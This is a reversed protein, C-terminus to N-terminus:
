SRTPDFPFADCANGVGDGDRDRQRGNKVTPCNDRYDPIGDFDGNGSVALLDSSLPEPQVPDGQCALLGTLFAMLILQPWRM